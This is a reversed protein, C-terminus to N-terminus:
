SKKITIITIILTHALGITHIHTPMVKYILAGMLGGLERQIGLADVGMLDFAKM